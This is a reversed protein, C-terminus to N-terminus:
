HWHQASVLALMGFFAAGGLFLHRRILVLERERRSMEGREAEIREHNTIYNGWVRFMVPSIPVRHLVQQGAEERVIQALYSAEGIQYYRASVFASDEYLDWRKNEERDLCEGIRDSLVL